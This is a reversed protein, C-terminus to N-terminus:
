EPAEIENYRHAQLENRRKLASGSLSVFHEVLKHYQAIRLDKEAIQVELDLIRARLKALDDAYGATMPRIKTARDEQTPQTPLASRGLAKDALHNGVKSFFAKLFAVVVESWFWTM